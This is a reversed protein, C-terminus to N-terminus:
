KAKGHEITFLTAYKGQVKAAIIPVEIAPENEGVEIWIEATTGVPLDRGVTLNAGLLPKTAIIPQSGLPNTAPNLECTGAVAKASCFAVGALLGSLALLRLAWPKKQIM